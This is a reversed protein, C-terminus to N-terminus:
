LDRVVILYFLDEKVKDIILVVNVIQLQIIEIGFIGIQNFIIVQFIVLDSELKEHCFFIMDIVDIDVVVASSFVVMLNYFMQVYLMKTGYVTSYVCCFLSHRLVSEKLKIQFIVM